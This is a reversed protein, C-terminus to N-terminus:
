LVLLFKGWVSSRLLTTGQQRFLLALDKHYYPVFAWCIYIWLTMLYFIVDSITCDGMWDFLCPLLFLLPTHPCFRFFHPLSYWCIKMFYTLFGRGVIVVKYNIFTCSCLRYLFSFAIFFGDKLHKQSWWYGGNGGSTKFGKDTTTDM